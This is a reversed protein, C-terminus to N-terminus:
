CSYSLSLIEDVTFYLLHQLRMTQSFKLLCKRVSGGNEHGTYVLHVIAAVLLEKLLCVPM